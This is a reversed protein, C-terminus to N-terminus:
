RDQGIVWTNGDCGGREVFDWIARWIPCSPTEISLRFALESHTSYLIIPICFHCGQVFESRTPRCCVAAGPSRASRRSILGRGAEGGSGGDSARGVGWPRAVAASPALAEGQHALALATKSRKAGHNNSFTGSSSSCARMASCQDRLGCCSARTCRSVPCGLSGMGESAAHWIRGLPALPASVFVASRLM